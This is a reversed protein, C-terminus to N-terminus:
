FKEVSFKGYYLFEICTKRCIVSSLVQTARLVSSRKEIDGSLTLRTTTLCQRRILRLSLSSYQNTELNYWHANSLFQKVFFFNRTIIQATVGLLFLDSKQHSEVWSCGSVYM